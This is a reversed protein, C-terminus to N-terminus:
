TVGFRRSMRRRSYDNQRNAGRKAVCGAPATRTVVALMEGGRMRMQAIQEACKVERVDM